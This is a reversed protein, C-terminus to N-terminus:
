LGQKKKMILDEMVDRPSFETARVSVNSGSKKTKTERQGCMHMLRFVIDKDQTLYDFELICLSSMGFQIAYHLGALIDRNLTSGFIRLEQM